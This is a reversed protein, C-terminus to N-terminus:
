SPTLSYHVVLVMGAITSRDLMGTEDPDLGPPITATTTDVELRWPQAVATLATFSATVTNGYIGAAFADTEPTGPPDATADDFFDLDTGTATDSVSPDLILHVDM